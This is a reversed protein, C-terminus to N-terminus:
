HLFIEIINHFYTSLQKLILGAEFQLTITMENETTKDTYHKSM